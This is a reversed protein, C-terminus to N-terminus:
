VCQAHPKGWSSVGDESCGGSLGSPGRGAQLRKGTARTGEGGQKVM